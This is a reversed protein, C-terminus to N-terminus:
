KLYDFTAAGEHAYGKSLWEKMGGEYARVNIFGLETLTKAASESAPCSYSACHVVIEQNRNWDATIEKLEKNPICISGLIHCDDFAEKGLVNIIILSENRTAATAMREQLAEASIDNVKIDKREASHLTTILALSLLAACRRLSVNNM